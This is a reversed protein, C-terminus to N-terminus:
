ENREELKTSVFNLISDAKEGRFILEQINNGMADYIETVEMRLIDEPIPAVFSGQGLVTYFLGQNELERYAKQVTNPNVSLSKAMERVSPVKSEAAFQQSIILRKFNEVIQEYIPTRNKLDVQFM